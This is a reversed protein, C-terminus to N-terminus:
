VDNEDKEVVVEKGEVQTRPKRKSIKWDEINWISNCNLLSRESKRSKASTESNLNRARRNSSRILMKGNISAGLNTTMRHDQKKSMVMETMRKTVLSKSRRGTKMVAQRIPHQCGHATKRAYKRITRDMEQHEWM